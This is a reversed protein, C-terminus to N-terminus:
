VWEGSTILQARKENAIKAAHQEDKAWTGVYLMRKGYITSFMRSTDKTINYERLTEIEVEQTECDGDYDMYVGYYKLGISIMDDITTM